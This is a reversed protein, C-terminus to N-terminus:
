IPVVSSNKCTGFGIKVKINKDADWITFSNGFIFGEDM